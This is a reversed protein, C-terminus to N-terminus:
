GEKEVKEGKGRQKEKERRKERGGERGVSGGSASTLRKVEWFLFPICQFPWPLKLLPYPLNLSKFIM